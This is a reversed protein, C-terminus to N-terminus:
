PMRAELQRNLRFRVNLAVLELSWRFVDAAIEALLPVALATRVTVWLRRRKPILPPNWLGM